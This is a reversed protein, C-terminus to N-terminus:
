SMRRGEDGSSEDSFEFVWHVFKSLPKNTKLWVTGLVKVITKQVCCKLKQGLPCFAWREHGLM